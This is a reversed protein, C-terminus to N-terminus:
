ILKRQAEHKGVVLLFAREYISLPKKPILQPIKREQEMIFLLNGLGFRRFMNRKTDFVEIQPLHISISAQIYFLFWFFFYAKM